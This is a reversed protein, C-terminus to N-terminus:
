QSIQSLVLDLCYGGFTPPISSLCCTLPIYRYTGIMRRLTLLDKGDLLFYPDLCIIVAYFLQCMLIQYCSLSFKCFTSKLQELRIPHAM